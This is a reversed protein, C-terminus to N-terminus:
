RELVIDVRRGEVPLPGTRQAEGLVVRRMAAPPVGAERLADAVADARRRALALNESGDPMRNAHAEIRVSRAGGSRIEGALRKALDRGDPGPDASDPAFFIAHRDHDQPASVCSAALALTAILISRRLMSWPKAQPNPISRSFPNSVEVRVNAVHHEVM